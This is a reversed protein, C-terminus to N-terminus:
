RSSYTLRHRRLTASAAQRATITTSGAKLITVVGNDVRAITPDDVTYTIPSETNPSSARLDFAPDGYSKEGIAPITIQASSSTVSLTGKVYTFTYNDSVGGSVTIDYSGM